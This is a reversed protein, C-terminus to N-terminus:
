LTFSSSSVVGNSGTFGTIYELRKAYDPAYESLFEDTTSILYGSLKEKRMQVRLAQLRNAIESSKGKKNMLKSM